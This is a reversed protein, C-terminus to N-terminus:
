DDIDIDSVSGENGVLTAPGRYRLAVLKGVNELACSSDPLTAAARAMGADITARRPHASPNYMYPLFEDIVVLCQRFADSAALLRRAGRASLVLGPTGYTFGIESFWQTPREADVDDHTARDGLWIGVDLYILDWEFGSADLEALAHLFIPWSAGTRLAFDDELVVARPAGRKVIEAWTRIHSITCGIEGATVPRTSYKLNHWWPIHSRLMVGPIVHLVEADEPVAWEENAQWGVGEVTAGDTADFYEFHPAASDAASMHHEIFNRRDNRRRLNIVLVPMRAYSKGSATAPGDAAPPQPPPPPVPRTDSFPERQLAQLILFNQVADDIDGWDDETMEWGDARLREGAAQRLAAADAYAARSSSTTIGGEEDCSIIVSTAAHQQQTAASTLERDLGRLLALSQSKGEHLWASPDPYLEPEPGLSAM